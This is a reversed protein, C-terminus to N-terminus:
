RYYGYPQYPQYGFPQGYGYPDGYRGRPGSQRYAAAPNIGCYANRGSASAMCQGYTAYSCDGPFGMDRGQVCWTGAAAPTSTVVGAVGAATLALMALVIKRMTQDGGDVCPKKQLSLSLM